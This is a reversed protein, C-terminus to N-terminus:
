RGESAISSIDDFGMTISHGHSARMHRWSVPLVCPFEARAAWFVLAPHQMPNGVAAAAPREYDDDPDTGEAYVAHISRRFAALRRSSLAPARTPWRRPQQARVGFGSLLFVYDRTIPPLWDRLVQDSWPHRRGVLRGLVDWPKSQGRLVIQAPHNSDLARAVELGTVREVLPETRRGGAVRLRVAPFLLRFQRLAGLCSVCPAANVLIHIYGLVQARWQPCGGDGGREDRGRSVIRDIMRDLFRFECCTRRDAFSNFPPNVARLWKSDRTVEGHYANECTESGQLTGFPGELNYEAYGVVRTRLWSIGTDGACPLEATLRGLAPVGGGRGVGSLGRFLFDDPPVGMGLWELLWQDGLTGFNDIRFTDVLDAYRSWDEPKLSQPM